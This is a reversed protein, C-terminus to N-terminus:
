RLDAGKGLARFLDGFHGLYSGVEVSDCSPSVEAIRVGTERALFASADDSFYPEQFVVGIGDTRIIGVLEQLHRGTPPIGPVPEVTAPIRIGFAHAFYVWSAHYTVIERHEMSAAASQGQNFVAQAAEAFEDARATFDAAHAPDIEGLARAISRAVIAGNRPDCWYHPNGDPHVDGLSADVKGTPKDLVEIGKSCDLVTLHENRSGDIIGDAWGDLGLGVKLYLQAKSVRVMYSPLVEVRHVDATARAIAQVEAEPGGVTAAISGLDTTSAVIRIKASAPAASVIACLLAALIWTYKM